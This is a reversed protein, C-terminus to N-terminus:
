VAFRFSERFNALEAVVARATDDTLGVANKLAQLYAQDLDAAAVAELVHLVHGRADKLTWQGVPEDKVFLTIFPRGTKLSVGPEFTLPSGMTAVPPRDQRMDQVIQAAALQDKTLEMIQRNVAADYEARQVVTLLAEAYALATAPTLALATDGDVELTVAFGSGDIRPETKVWIAAEPSPPKKM